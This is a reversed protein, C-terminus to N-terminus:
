EGQLQRRRINKSGMNQEVATIANDIALFRGAVGGGNLSLGTDVAAASVGLAGVSLAITSLAWSTSPASSRSAKSM